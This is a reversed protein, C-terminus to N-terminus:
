ENWEGRRHATNSLSRTGKPGGTSILSLAVCFPGRALDSPCGGGRKQDERFAAMAPSRSRRGFHTRPRIRAGIRLADVSGSQNRTVPRREPTSRTATDLRC